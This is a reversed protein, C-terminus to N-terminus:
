SVVCDSVLSYKSRILKDLIQLPADAKVQLYRVPSRKMKLLEIEFGQGTALGASKRRKEEEEQAWCALEVPRHRKTQAYELRINLLVQKSILDSSDLAKDPSVLDGDVSPSLENNSFRERRELELQLLNPTLQYILRQLLSDPRSSVTAAHDGTLLQM